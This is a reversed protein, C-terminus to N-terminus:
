GFIAVCIWVFLLVSEMTDLNDVFEFGNEDCNSVKCQHWNGDNNKATEHEILDYYDEDDCECDTSYYVLDGCEAKNEEIYYYHLIHEGNCSYKYKGVTKTGECEAM